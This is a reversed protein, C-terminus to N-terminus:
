RGKDTKLEALCKEFSLGYWRSEPDRDTEEICRTVFCVADSMADKLDWGALLRGSVVSAFIDGGGLYTGDHKKKFCEGYRGSKSDYCIAGIDGSGSHIGTIIVQAPGLASLADLMEMAEAKDLEEPPIYDRDLLLFAETVNPIALDAKAVLRKMHPIFDRGLGSYMEGDDAMAPDVILCGTDDGMNEVFSMIADIQEKSGMYGTYVADPRIGNKELEKTVPIIRDSLDYSVFSEFATHNSLLATPIVVTETELCSLVPLAATISCKGACSLDQFTIIRKM